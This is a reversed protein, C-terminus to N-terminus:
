QQGGFADDLGALAYMIFLEAQGVVPKAAAVTASIIGAEDYVKGIETGTADFYTATARTGRLLGTTDLTQPTVVATTCIAAAGDSDGVTITVSATFAELVRTGANLLVAGVPLKFLQYVGTADVDVDSATSSVGFTVRACRIPAPFDGLYNEGLYPISKVM